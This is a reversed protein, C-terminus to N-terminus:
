AHPGPPVRGMGTGATRATWARVTNLVPRAHLHAATAGTQLRQAAPVGSRRVRVSRPAVSLTTNHGAGPVVLLVKREVPAAELMRRADAPPALWDDRGSIFLIPQTRIRRVATIASVRQRDLQVGTRLRFMWDTSRDLLPLKAVWFAAKLALPTGPHQTFHDLVDDPTIFASDAIVADVDACQAAAHLAAVARYSFGFTVISGQEGRSRVTAVGALIDLAERYGPTMYNGESEGHGRLDLDLVNYGARVLFTARPLMGSRNEDKGHAMVVNIPPSDIAPGASAGAVPQAPLWWAKLAIGDISQLGVVEFPLGYDKPSGTLQHWHPHEGIAFSSGVYGSVGLLVVAAAVLVGAWRLLKRPRPLHIM